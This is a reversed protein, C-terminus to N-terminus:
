IPVEIMSSKIRDVFNCDRAFKRVGDDVWGLREDEPLDIPNAMGLTEGCYKLWDSKWSTDDGEDDASDAVLDTLVQRLAQPLLLGQVLPETELKSLLQPLRFHLQLRPGADTIRVRWVESGLDLQDVPFLSRRGDPTESSDPRLRHAAGLILGSGCDDVVKVRFLVSDGPDIEDLSFQEPVVPEAVTGVEFRMGQSRQYAEFIVPSKPPFGLSGLDFSATAQLSKGAELPRLRVSILTHPIRKRGTFNIRRKVATM